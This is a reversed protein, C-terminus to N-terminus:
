SRIRPGRRVLAIALEEAERQLRSVPVRLILRGERDWGHWAVASLISGLLQSVFAHHRIRRFQGSRSGSRLVRQVHGGFQAVLDTERDLESAAGGKALDSLWIRLHAPHAALYAVLRRVFTRLETAPDSGELPIALATVAELVRRAVAQSVGAHGDFHAFIAPPSIGLREAIEKLQFHEFGDRAILQEAEELIKERTGGSTAEERSQRGPL